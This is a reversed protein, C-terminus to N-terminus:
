VSHEIGIVLRIFSRCLDRHFKLLCRFSGYLNDHYTCLAIHAAFTTGSGKVTPVNHHYIFSCLFQILMAEAKHQHFFNIFLLNFIIFFLPM